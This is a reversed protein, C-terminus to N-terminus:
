DPYCARPLPQSDHAAPPVGDRIELPEALVSADVGAQQGPRLGEVDIGFVQQSGPVNTASIQFRPEKGDDTSLLLLLRGDLPEGAGASPLRIAFRLPPAGAPAVAGRLPLAPLLVVPVGRGPATPMM